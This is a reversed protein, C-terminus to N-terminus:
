RHEQELRQCKSRLNVPCPIGRALNILLKVRIALFRRLFNALVGLLNALVDILCDIFKVLLNLLASGLAFTPYRTPETSVFLLSM